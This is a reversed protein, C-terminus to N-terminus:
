PQPSRELRVPDIVAHAIKKRKWTYTVHVKGDSAQIIAPYSFEGPEAELTVVPTWAKGDTSLAINLPSRGKETHNYILLHRGDALTVADTGSNPNPLDTLSMEGWTRGSDASEVQFIRKGTRTRGLALLRGGGLDLISPQIAGIHKGDNVPGIVEWTAGDDASREFHVRWGDDETSSPALISGDALEVPKNKIPGVPGGTIATGDRSLRVAASWTRGGDSSSRMLGWWTRPDPGIKYFLLLDGGPKQFLVPNWCPWRGGDLQVGTVVEVPATWSGHELRSTWIGVDPNKEATGGFWAAIFEGPKTEAITSAHCSPTPLDGAVFGRSVIAAAGDDAAPDEVRANRLFYMRGDEAGGLFDPVGDGDFDVVTPSVDHGEIDRTALARAPAFTWPGNGDGTQRMIDANKANVLLDFRGDGDWDTVCLKRRGSGGAPKGNLRLPQGRENLFWRRPPLLVLSGDRHAREFYALYGEHDLVALDTLDDGNFDHVLPTTRWQTLLATGEPQRWGWSLRPQDASWAVEIPQAEALRPKKRTGINELWTIEGLISNLVIDPLGDGNWDAVSFTTYGWKAEAPGQISGNPGAMIRFPRGGADLRRPAAWRPSAVGPGSLNEFWEIFGATNGSVIDDDGDGDWDVGVPTALAGCKLTDAEQKFYVPSRFVPTGDSAIRGTHEILAVRGDEDGVILDMHGDRNWDFAVPVIMELEMTLPTGDEARLEVGAEYEPATRTGVNRFYTFRDLFSGCLLDLDGDGDFDEFNPSPCGFVDIPKGGAALQVPKTAFGGNGTGAFVFVFGHLPGNMWSGQPDYADDWGYYSWDEIGCVLDEVGDGDYDALRWQNHRVRPGKKQPGQPVYWNAAVPLPRRKTAWSRPVDDYEFGPSLVRLRGNVYSPMLYNVTHSIRRGARFVPLPDRATDGTTNEFVWVGNSPKDPCSVVLDFDGDGDADCPIPWAWLGVGLDVTLGPHNYRLPELDAAAARLVGLCVIVITRCFYNM